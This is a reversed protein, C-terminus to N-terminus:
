LKFDNKRSLLLKRGKFVAKRGYRRRLMDLVPTIKEERPDGISILSLQSFTIVARIFVFVMNKEGAARAPFIACV